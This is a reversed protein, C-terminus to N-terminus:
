LSFLSATSRRRKTEVDVVRMGAAYTPIHMIRLSIYQTYIAEVTSFSVIPATVRSSPSPLTFSEHM